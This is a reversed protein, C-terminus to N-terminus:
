LNATNTYGLTLFGPPSTNNVILCNTVREKFNNPKTSNYNIQLRGLRAVQRQTRCNEACTNRTIILKVYQCFDYSRISNKEFM